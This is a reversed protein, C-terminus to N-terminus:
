RIAPSPRVCSNLRPPHPSPRKATATAPLHLATDALAFTLGGHIVDFGNMMDDRVPMTAIAEGPAAIDISIGLAKSSRDKALMDDACRRATDLDGM